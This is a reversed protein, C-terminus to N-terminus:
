FEMAVGSSAHVEYHGRIIFWHKLALEITERPYFIGKSIKASILWSFQRQWSPCWHIHRIVLVDTLYKRWTWFSALNVLNNCLSDETLSFAQIRYALIINQMMVKFENKQFMRRNREWVVLTTVSAINIELLFHHKSPHTMTQFHVFIIKDVIINSTLM